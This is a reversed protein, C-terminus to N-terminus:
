PKLRLFWALAVAPLTGARKVGGLVQLVPGALLLTGGGFLLAAPPVAESWRATTETNRNTGSPARM